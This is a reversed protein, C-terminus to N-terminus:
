AKSFPAKAERLKSRQQGPDDSTPPPAAQMASPVPPVIREVVGGVRDRSREFSTRVVEDLGAGVGSVRAFERRQTDIWWWGAGLVSLFVAVTSVRRAADRLRERRAARRTTREFGLRELVSASVDLAADTSALDDSLEGLLRDVDARIGNVDKRRRARGSGSGDDRRFGHESM